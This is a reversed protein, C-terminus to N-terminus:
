IEDSSDHNEDDQEDEDEANDNFHNSDAFKTIWISALVLKRPRFGSRDFVNLHRNKEFVHNLLDNYTLPQFFNNLKVMDSSDKIFRFDDNIPRQRIAFFYTADNNKEAIFSLGIRLEFPPSLIDDLKDILKSFNFDFTVLKKLLLTQIERQQKPVFLSDRILNINTVLSEEDKELVDSPSSAPNVLMLKIRSERKTGFCCLSM